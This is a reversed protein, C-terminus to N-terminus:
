ICVEHENYVLKIYVHKSMYIVTGPRTMAPTTNFSSRPLVDPLRLGNLM